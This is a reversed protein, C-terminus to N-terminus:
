RDTVRQRTDDFGVLYYDTKRGWLRGKFVRGEARHAPHGHHHPSRTKGWLLERFELPRYRVNGAHKRRIEARGHVHEELQDFLRRPDQAVVVIHFDNLRMMPVLDIRGRPRCQRQGLPGRGTQAAVQALYGYVPPLAYDALARALLNAHM